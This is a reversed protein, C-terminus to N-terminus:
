RVRVFDWVIGEEVGGNIKVLASGEGGDGAVGDKVGVPWLKEWHAMMLVFGGEPRARACFNEWSQHKKAGCCLRGGMDHGLFLGSAPARFGLWGNREVCDWYISGRGGPPSLSIQGDKLTIVSASGSSRIIYCSGPWPICSTITQIPTSARPSPSSTDDDSTSLHPSPSSLASTFSDNSPSM